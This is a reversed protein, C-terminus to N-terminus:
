LWGYNWWLSSYKPIGKIGLSGNTIPTANTIIVRIIEAFGLTAIGLYDGGLRMVPLAVIFSLLAAALGGLVVSLAFSTHLNALPGFIPELMWLMEKQAPTLICLASVYAGVAMFGAHGLSFMGSFGYIFNLSLALIANIAVLNLLQTRYGDLHGTAWNLGLVALILVALTSLRDRGTHQVSAATM